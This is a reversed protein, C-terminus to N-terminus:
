YHPRQRSCSFCLGGGVRLEAPPMGVVHWAKEGCQKCGPANLYAFVQMLCLLVLFVLAAYKSRLGDGDTM